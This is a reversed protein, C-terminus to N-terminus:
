LLYIYLFWRVRGSGWRQMFVTHIVDILQEYGNCIDPFNGIWKRGNQITCTYKLKPRTAPFGEIQCLAQPVEVRSIPVHIEPSIVESAMALFAENQSMYIVIFANVMFLLMVYSHMGLCIM